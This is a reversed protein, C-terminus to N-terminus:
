KVINLVAKAIPPSLRLSLSIQNLTILQEGENNLPISYSYNLYILELFSIGITPKIRYDNKLYHYIGVGVNLGFGANGTMGIAYGISQGIIFDSRIYFGHVSCNVGHSFISQKLTRYTYTPLTDNDKKIKKSQYDQRKVFLYNFGLDFCNINQYTYGVQLGLGNEEVTQSKLNKALILVLIIITIRKM